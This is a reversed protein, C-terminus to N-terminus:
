YKKEMHIRQRILEATADKLHNYCFFKLDCEDVDIVPHERKYNKSFYSNKLCQTNDKKIYGCRSNHSPIKNHKERTTTRHVNKNWEASSFDFDIEM